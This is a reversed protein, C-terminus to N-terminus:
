DSCYFRTLMDVYTSLGEEDWVVRNLVLPFACMGNVNSYVGEWLKIAGVVMGARYVDYFCGQAPNKQQIDLMALLVLLGEQLTIGSPHYTSLPGLDLKEPGSQWQETRM